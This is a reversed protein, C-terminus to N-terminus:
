IPENVGNINWINMKINQCGFMPISDVYAVALLNEYAAIQVVYRDFAINNVNNGALDFILICTEM